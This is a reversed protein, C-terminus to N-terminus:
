LSNTDGDRKRWLKGHLKDYAPLQLHELQEFLEMAFGSNNPVLKWMLSRLYGAEFEDLTIVVEVKQSTTTVKM